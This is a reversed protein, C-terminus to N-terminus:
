GIQTLSGQLQLVANAKVSTQLGEVSTSTKGKVSVTM